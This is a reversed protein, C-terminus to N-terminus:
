SKSWNKLHGGMDKLPVAGGIGRCIDGARVAVERPITTQLSIPAKGYVM